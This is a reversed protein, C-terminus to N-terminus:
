RRLIYHAPRTHRGGVESAGGLLHIAGDAAVAGLGHLPAPMEPGEAWNDTLPDYVFVESHARGGAGFSEGGFCWLRGDMVAAAHGGRAAPMPALTVWRERAPDWAEHATLNELGGSKVVRGGAVHLRGNLVASASSNRPTPLPPMAVWQKAGPSLRWAAGTDRHDPYSGNQGDWPTRGGAILLDRGVLGGAVEAQPAPLSPAARWAGRPSDLVWCKAQMQWIAGPSAVFGGIALLRGAQVTLFPHHLAEPLSPLDRWGKGLPPMSVVSSTPWLAGLNAVFQPGRARFGGGAVLEGRWLTPYIEQVPYPLATGEVWIATEPAAPNRREDAARAPMAAMAAAGALLERRALM